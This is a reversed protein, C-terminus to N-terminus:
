MGIGVYPRPSFGSGNGVALRNGKYCVPIFQEDKKPNRL